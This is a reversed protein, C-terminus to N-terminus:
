NCGLALSDVVTVLESPRRLVKGRLAESLGVDAGAVDIKLTGGAADGPAGQRESTMTSSLFSATWYKKLVHDM